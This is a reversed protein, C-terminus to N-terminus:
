FAKSARTKRGERLKAQQDLCRRQDCKSICRKLTATDCRPRVEGSFLKFPIKHKQKFIADIMGTFVEICDGINM